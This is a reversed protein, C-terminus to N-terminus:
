ASPSSLPQPSADERRAAARRPRGHVIGFVVPVFFLTALTAFLLGGIVARGLPANQGPEIAMPAMGIMMALATMMVPRLRTAGAALAAEMATRGADFQERAFSIVLISNATAVGMCMIAGTLAPVSVHTHTAFLMWVIGALAAPLATVIVFPDVWSQFNVVILLYILMIAFALGVLLQQYAQAMTVAQGRVTVTAGKPLDARTADIAGQIDATVGGLDRDQTTALINVTPAINYDTAVASLPEPRITALGGLLQESRAATIPLNNLAGLTDISYQPTQVSVPYSVGNRPDLWYTPATQTSGSLTAQLSAAADGETLGVVGALARDFDVRLAPNRAQEQIRADAVGAVRRVRALLMNAYARGGAIDRSAVQVDLAAPSGFNLIQSVIDAPLFAFTVGPFDQPLRERLQRTLAATSPGGESGGSTEDLTVLMDADFTGITGSNGYSINIGSIPLGINNVVSAVRGPPILARLRGEVRGTLATMEEIRTGTPARLHIRLAGADVDPFFDRGLYPVLGFSLGVVALFGVAFSKRRSLALGLLGLYAQRLAEFRHEFGRQFRAFPGPKNAPDQEHAHETLLYRALTPVLTYTLAYSAIMAFVVAMALPRFLFGAVGGLALLPVFAICICFLAVTAPPMIEQAGRTIATVIDEGFEEMHRNINEITVTADDVLIGVALALGGLTMVNITQGLASLAILSCLVALPISVTIILTSRWSGLFVLIMLGTLAAAIVGERVVAVVSERVFGSQDAVYKLDVGTPLGAQIAPLRAKVDAIIDLTSANGIKLISMLVGKKGDLQVVNTQPPSGNRVHAVDRMFVVAGDVVKVPLDNFAEISKPSDNLDVIWEFSGIKQTGVPNILNQRALAAGVDAASLGHAHLASQDLDIQVQRAAGGYAYPLQAGPITTLQPRIFNQALDNLATQSLSDSSLALQIIPVSSANYALMLPPTVGPPLQKLQTQSISTVQAQAATIDVGPQFYIKVIGYGPVSQSEIHEIDNVTTTLSREFVSVIRGAMDDPQLGTYQWVVSIVPIGIRPFIDTPTRVIAMVGFILILISMVVFTYPRLLALRVIAAM